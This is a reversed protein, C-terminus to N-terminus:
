HSLGGAVLSKRGATGSRGVILPLALLSLAFLCGLALWAENLTQTLAAREILPTILMRTMDDVPGMPQNHFLTLPLGVFRAMM